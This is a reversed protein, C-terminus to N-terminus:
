EEAVLWEGRENILHLDMNSRSGNGYTIQAVLRADNGEQRIAQPPIDIRRVGQKEAAFYESSGAKMLLAGKATNSDWWSQRPNTFVTAYRWAGEGDGRFLADLYAHARGGPTNEASGGAGPRAPAAVPAAIDVAAPLAAEARGVTVPAPMAAQPAAIAVPPPEGGQLIVAIDEQLTPYDESSALTLAESGVSELGLFSPDSRAENGMFSPTSCGGLAAALLFLLGNRNMHPIHPSFRRVVYCCKGTAYLFFPMNMLQHFFNNNESLEYYKKVAILAEDHYFFMM